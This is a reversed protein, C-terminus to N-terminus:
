CVSNLVLVGDDMHSVSVSHHSIHPEVLEVASSAIVLIVHAFDHQPIIELILGSGCIQLRVSKRFHCDSLSMMMCTNLKCWSPLM